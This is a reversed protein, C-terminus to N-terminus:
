GTKLRNNFRILLGRAKWKMFAKISRFPLLSYSRHVLLSSCHVLSQELNVLSHTCTAYSSVELALIDASVLRTNKIYHGLARIASHPPSPVLFLMCQVLVLMSHGTVTLFQIFM